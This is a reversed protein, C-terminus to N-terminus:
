DAHCSLSSTTAANGKEVWKEVEETNIWINGDPALKYHVGEIFHGARRKAKVSDLTEGSLEYYKKAKVWKM